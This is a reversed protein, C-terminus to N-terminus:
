KRDGALVRVGNQDWKARRGEDGAGRRAYGGVPRWACGAHRMCSNITKKGKGLGGELTNELRMREWYIFCGKFDM